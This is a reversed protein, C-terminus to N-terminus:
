SWGRKMPINPMVPKNSTVKRVSFGKARGYELAQTVEDESLGSVTICGDKDRYVSKGNLYARNLEPMVCQKDTDRGFKMSAM